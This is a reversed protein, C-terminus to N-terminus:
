WAMNPWWKAIPTMYQWLYLLIIIELLYHWEFAHRILCPWWQVHHQNGCYPVHGVFTLMEWCRVTISYHWLIPILLSCNIQAAGGSGIRDNMVTDQNYRLQSNNAVALPFQHATRGDQSGGPLLQPTTFEPAPDGRTTICRRMTIKM